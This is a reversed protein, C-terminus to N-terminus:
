IKNVGTNIDAMVRSCIGTSPAILVQECGIGGGKIIEIYSIGHKGCFEHISMEGGSHKERHYEPSVEIWAMCKSARCGQDTYPCKNSKATVETVNKIRLKVEDM